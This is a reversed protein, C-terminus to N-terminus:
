TNLGWAKEFVAQAATELEAPLVQGTVAWIAPEDFSVVMRQLWTPHLVTDDDTYVV